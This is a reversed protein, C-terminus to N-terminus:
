LKGLTEQNDGRSTKLVTPNKLQIELQKRTVRKRLVEQDGELHDVVVPGGLLDSVVDGSIKSHLTAAKARVLQDM